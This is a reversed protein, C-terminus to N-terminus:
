NFVIKQDFFYELQMTGPVEFTINKNKLKFTMIFDANGKKRQTTVTVKQTSHPPVDVEVEVTNTVGKTESSSQTQTASFDLSFTLTEKVGGFLPVKGSIETESKFGIAETFSFSFSNSIARSYSVSATVKKVSCTNNSVETEAQISDSPISNLQSQDITMDILEVDESVPNLIISLGPRFDSHYVLETNDDPKISGGKPHVYFNDYNQLYTRNENRVMRVGTRTGDSGEHLVLAVENGATGGMPHVFKKSSYHQIQVAGDVTKFVFQLELRGKGGEHFILPTNNPPSDSGGLPHVLKGSEKHVLYYRVGEIPIVSM